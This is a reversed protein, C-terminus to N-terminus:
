RQSKRFILEQKLLKAVKSYTYYSGGSAGLDLGLSAGGGLAVMKNDRKGTNPDTSAFAEVSGLGLGGTIVSAGGQYNRVDKRIRLKSRLHDCLLIFQKTAFYEVFFILLFPFKLKCFFGHFLFQYLLVFVFKM